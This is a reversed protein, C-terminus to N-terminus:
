TSTEAVSQDSTWILGVSHPTDLYTHDHFGLNLLGLGVYTQEAVLLCNSLYTTMAYSPALHIKM